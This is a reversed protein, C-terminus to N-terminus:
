MWQYLRRPNLIGAPDLAHKLNRHLKELAPPLPQFVGVTKDGGRFLTAHGGASRAAERVVHADADTALWRLAGGWEMLGKGPTKLPPTTPKLSIRWLPNSQNFFAAQQERLDRWFANSEVVDEGGIKNRAARIAAASGSLRVTLQNDFHCTASIPLPRGAWENMAKIAEAASKELRLTMEIPPAPLVKFSVELLLGLTGLSGAMLRSVDYGAVNKMVQGGFRLDNGRGDIFRVGLVFDRLSGASARRPGSLGAAVCGGVTAGEGFYPPECALMQNEASLVREVEALPTGARVTIVLETPEYDVIGDLPKVDVIEGTLEQGYFDKTGGARFRLPQRAESAVRVKACLENILSNM